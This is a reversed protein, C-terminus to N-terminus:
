PTTHELMTRLRRLDRQLSHQLWWRLIPRALRPVKKPELEVDYSFVASDPTGGTVVSRRGRVVGSTGEGAFSYSLGPGVETVETDTVYERGGLQLVERVNTGVQPPGDRDPTMETIGKRWATDTAYDTVVNWVAMAPRPIEVDVHTYLTDTM